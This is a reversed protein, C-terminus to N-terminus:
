VLEGVNRGGTENVGKLKDRLIYSALTSRVWYNIKEGGFIRLKTRGTKGAQNRLGEVKLEAKLTYTKRFAM